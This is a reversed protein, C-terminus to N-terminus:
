HHSPILKIMRVGTAPVELELIENMAFSGIEQNDNWLDYVKYNRQSSEFIENLVHKMVSKNGGRNFYVVAHSGSSDKDLQRHWVETSDKVIVRKGSLGLPNQNVAIVHPNLLIKKFEEGIDRLDNSMLLPGPMMSWISMQAKSQDVNLGKNGVIIMDPDFWGGPGNYDKYVEYNELYFDIIKVVSDWHDYIDDYFRWGNCHQKFGAFDIQNAKWRPDNRAQFFPGSCYYVVPRQTANLAESLKWYLRNMDPPYINCGDVKLSDIDWSAFTKADLPIYDHDKDEIHGPYRACTQTGIDSYLGLKLGKSHVYDAVGKIGNPFRERHPIMAKTDPDREKESWCDDINVFDYGAELYGESAMVDAMEKYLNENICGKPHKVCDTECFFRTWSLWGMPPTRALGNELSIASETLLLLLLLSTCVRLMRVLKPTTQRGELLEIFCPFM